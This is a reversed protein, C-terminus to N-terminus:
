DQFDPGRFGAQLEVGAVEKIAGDGPFGPMDILEAVGEAHLRLMIRIGRVLGRKWGNDQMGAVSIMIDDDILKAHLSPSNFHLHVLYALAFPALKNPMVRSGRSGRDGYWRPTM